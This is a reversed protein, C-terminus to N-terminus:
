QSRSPWGQEDVEHIPDLMLLNKIEEYKELTPAKFEAPWLLPATPASLEQPASPSLLGESVIEQVFSDIEQSVDFSFREAFLTAISNPSHGCLLLQWIPVASGRLSYYIGTDLNALIAEDDLLEHIIATTPITYTTKM